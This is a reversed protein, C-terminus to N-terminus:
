DRLALVIARFLVDKKQQELPLRDFPVLCPHTKKAPDKKYGYVWGGGRKEDLWEEHSASAPAEPDSLVFAVGNIVSDRQWQPAKAWALQSDDGLTQCYARNAMHCVKAIEENTM